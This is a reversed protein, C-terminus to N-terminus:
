KKCVNEAAAEARSMHINDQQLPALFYPAIPGFEDRIQNISSIVGGNQLVVHVYPM